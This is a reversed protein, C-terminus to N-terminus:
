VQMRMIEQYAEIAKNRVETLMRLAIDAKQLTTVVKEINEERGTAFDELVKKAEKQLENVEGIAQKLIEYFNRSEGRQIKGAERN